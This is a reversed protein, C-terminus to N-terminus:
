KSLRGEAAASINLLWLLEASLQTLIINRAQSQLCQEVAQEVRSVLRRRIGHGVPTQRLNTYIFLQGATLLLRIIQTSSPENSYQVRTANRAALLTLISHEIVYLRDVYAAGWILEDRPVAKLFTSLEHLRQFM